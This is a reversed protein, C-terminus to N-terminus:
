YDWEKDDGDGEAGRTLIFAGGIVAVVVLVIIAAIAQSPMGEDEGAPNNGGDIVGPDVVGSSYDATMLHSDGDPSYVNGTTDKAGVAFFMNSSCSGGCM